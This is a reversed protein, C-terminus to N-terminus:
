NPPVLADRVLSAVTTRLQIESDVSYWAAHPTVLVNPLTALSAAPPPETRLVDLAAAKVRGDTLAARLADEDILTGRATNVVIVGRKVQGLEAPGLVPAGDLTAPCHVSLVDSEALLRQLSVPEVGRQSLTADDVLPDHALVRMGFAAGRAAVATGIRGCGILGLTMGRVRRLPRAPDVSWQGAAVASVLPQIGRLITLALALTHDAVEETCYDPVNRVPIGQEAAANQDITDLGVGYRVIIRCRRLAGLVERTIRAYQVIAADADALVEVLAPGGGLERRRDQSGLAVHLDPLHELGEGIGVRSDHLVRADRALHEARQAATADDHAVSDAQVRDILVGGGFPANGHAVHGVIAGLFNGIV